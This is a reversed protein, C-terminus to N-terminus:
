DFVKYGILVGVDKKAGRSVPQTHTSNNETTAECAAVTVTSIKLLKKEGAVTVM